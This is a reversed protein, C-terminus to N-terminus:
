DLHALPGHSRLNQHNVRCTHGCQSRDKRQRPNRGVVTTGQPDPSSQIGLFRIESELHDSMYVGGHDHRLRLGAAIGAAFDGFHEKMGQRLPELAEFRSAKQVVHIGVCRGFLSRHGRLDDGSGGTRHLDRHCRDRVDTSRSLNRGLNLLAGQASLSTTYPLERVAAPERRRGAISSPLVSSISRAKV